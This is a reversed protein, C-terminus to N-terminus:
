FPFYGIRHFKKKKNRDRKKKKQKEGNQRNEFDDMFLLSQSLGIQKTQKRRSIHLNRTSPFVNIVDAAINAM